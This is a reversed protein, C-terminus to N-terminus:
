HWDMLQGSEEHLSHVSAGVDAVAEWRAGAGLVGGWIGVTGTATGAWPGGGSESRALALVPGELTQVGDGEGSETSSTPFSTWVGNYRSIGSDTGFWIADDSALAAWVNNSLLGDSQQAFHNWRTDSRTQAAAPLVGILSLGIVMLLPLTLDALSRISLVVRDAMYTVPCASGAEEERYSVCRAKIQDMGHGHKKETGARKM